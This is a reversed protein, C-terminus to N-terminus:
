TLVGKSSRRRLQSANGRGDQVPRKKAWAGDQRAAVMRNQPAREESRQTKEDSTTVVIGGAEIPSGTNCNM